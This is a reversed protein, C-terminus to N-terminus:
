QGPFFIRIIGGGEEKFLHIQLHSMGGHMTDALDWHYTGSKGNPFLFKDNRVMNGTMGTTNRYGRGQFLRLFLEAAEEQSRVTVELTDSALEKAISKLGVRSFALVGAFIAAGAKVEGVGIMDLPGLMQMEIPREGIIGGRYDRIVGGISFAAQGQWETLGGVTRTTKWHLEEWTTKGIEVGEAVETLSYVHKEWYGWRGVGQADVTFQEWGGKGNNLKPNWRTTNEPGIVGAGSAVMRFAMGCDSEIGDIYCTMLGSLDTYNVPDNQVYSYLNLSQPDVPSAARMGLPDVQNFRGLQSAYHRNVAYDLGTGDREYTTFKHKEGEGSGGIEEGFPLHDTTGKVNGDKDTILRTSLRDQHYYRTGAAQSGGGGLEYEAIVQDGEWVYHTVVGGVVKKVRHNMADYGYSESVIGSVSVTVLRGEADYTYEKAGERTVNGSADYEFATGNVSAIRNTTMGRSQGIVTNQLPNGGSVADWVATRNGYRDYDFRRAWAGWGTATVLRGVNDYTFAQNRNQGNITGTVSVLQGSNGATSGNGMQGALAGYGYSLDLLTSGGKMVKQSTLQLRDDSYEFSETTGDGLTQGSVLGDVRYNIGSLYAPAGSVDVRQLAALRGRDDRGVNVKKGSPYTMMTMQNAANYEYQKVYRIGDIVRTCSQLRGLSDYGYSETGAGDTVTKIRGKGPSDDRYYDISVTATPAVGTVNSYKVETLLNLDGYTYTTIVGRADRRTRVADFDWYDYTIEGAEPTKEKTLRSKADYDFTRTQGGQNTQTLNNLVDYSYSTGWELAGNAPNQETVKVLRGLGDVESMRQRGVTDTVTVTAGSTSTAGRYDTQITQNDAGPLTVIKVRSLEDYTNTTWFQPSGNGSADGSYPNSQKTVRGWGDYVTATADYSNPAGGTGTGARIVRGAGDFWQRGTIVKPTGQDDYSTKSIYSLLDNGATDREFKTEAVAHTAENTVSELRLASDYVYTTQVRDPNTEYEVLGTFYNHHYSTQLSLGTDGGSTVSDPESYATQESFSFSKKVCCSVEAEVVNGFIDYRVGRTTAKEEPSFSSFTKVATANGRMVFSQNYKADHNPPYDRANVLNYYEIGGMAAYDDYFTETKAKLVDDADNNNNLADYVSVGSVLRLFREDKYNQTDIYDFHTRRRVQYDTGQKYGCEYQDTVRGYRGYGFKVLRGQGAEDFTEVEKIEAEGDPGTTYTFIQKSLVEEPNIKKREVSIVKGFSLQGSDTEITTVEKCNKGVYEITTKETTGDTTRSYIYKTTDRTPTGNADTKDQWWEERKTFQPFDSLSGVQNRGYPDNPDITTYNYTTYAMEVGDTITGGAGKMGMRTSIKRPMGYSSYDLFLYGRGTQPYSIRRVVQVQSNNAPADVALGGFDYKLTILQYEVRIVEQQVGDKDPAKIAALEGAPHGKTPDPDAPYENGADGYYHFTVYRGRTDRVANLATRHRFVQTCTGECYDRYSMTITGGNTNIMATPLLVGNVSSYIMRSGDPHRMEGSIPNFQLFSGDDSEHFWHGKAADYKPALRVRTGDGAVLLYDGPSNGSGVGSSNGTATANYNRIIKGFGMSWGPAPYAGVYNFTLKGNDTNWVRSNLTMGISASVGRGGVSVVPVNFQYNDSGLQTSTPVATGAQSRASFRPNGVANRFHTARSGAEPLPDWDLMVGDAGILNQQPPAAASKPAFMSAQEGSCDGTDLDAQQNSGTPRTGSRVEITIQRTVNGSQVTVTTTGVGVAEVEGFSSVTAVAGNLSSWSMGAGHVVQQSGNLAVPTFTYCEGVFMVHQTPCVQLVTVQEAQAAASVVKGAPRGLAMEIAHNLLDSGSRAGHRNAAASTYASMARWTTQAARILGDAEAPTLPAALRVILVVALARRLIPKLRAMGSSRWSQLARRAIARVREPLLGALKQGGLLMLAVIRSVVKFIPSFAAFFHGVFKLKDSAGAFLRKCFDTVNLKDSTRALLRKGFDAFKLKNSTWELLRKGFGVVFQLKDSVAAAIRFLVELLSAIQNRIRSVAGVAAVAFRRGAQRWNIVLLLASVGCAILLVLGARSLPIAAWRSPSSPRALAAVEQALDTLPSLPWRSPAGLQPWAAKPGADSWPPLLMGTQKITDTPSSGNTAAEPYLYRQPIIQKPTSASSWLLYIAAKGRANYYEVRVDAKEGAKLEVPASRIQPESSPQWHDIVLQNNVWLRAGDDSYLYFTYAESSPAALHGNWRASFRDATLLKDPSNSAWNFNVVPDTRQLASQGSLTTNSFYRATLGRPEADTASQDLATPQSQGLLCIFICCEDVYGDQWITFTQGGVTLTGERNVTCRGNEEVSYNVTGNGSGSAGSTITIWGANSSASWSCGAPASVTISGTGGYHQFSWNTPSIVFGCQTITFVQGKVNITGTRSGGNNALVTFSVPGNGIGSSGGDIRIWGDNNAANWQCGAGTTVSFSGSGGEVPYLGSSPSLAFTCSAQNPAQTVTLTAFTQGGATISISGVRQQGSNATASYNITAPGVGSTPSATLWSTDSSVANWACGAGATLSLPRSGGEQPFTDNTINLSYVCSSPNPAQTVTFAQGNVTITGVRQPGSNAAVSYNVTGNGSGSAGSTVTLWSTANSTTTWNCISPMSFSFSGTQGDKSVSVSNPNLTPVCSIEESTVLRGGAYVYEKLKTFPPDTTAPLASSKVAANTTSAANVSALSPAPKIARWVSLSALAVASSTLLLVILLARRSHRLKSIAGSSRWRKKFPRLKSGRISSKNFTNGNIAM